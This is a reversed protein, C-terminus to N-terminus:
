CVTFYYKTGSKAKTWIFSTDTTDGAKQWGDKGTKYYVRYKEAGKVKKWSIKAGTAANSVSSLVPTGLKIEEPEEPEEPQDNDDPQEAEDSYDSGSNGIEDAYATFAGVPLASIVMILCLLIPLAKKGIIKFFSMSFKGEEYRQYILLYSTKVIEANFFQLM